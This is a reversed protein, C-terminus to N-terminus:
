AHAYRDILPQWRKLDGHLGPVVVVLRTVGASLNSAARTGAEAEKEVMGPKERVPGYAFLKVKSDALIRSSERGFMKLRLNEM